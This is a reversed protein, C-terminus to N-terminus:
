APNPVIQRHPLEFRQLAFECFPIDWKGAIIALQNICRQSCGFRVVIDIVHRETCVERGYIMQEDIRQNQCSKLFDERAGFPLQDVEDAMVNRSFFDDVTHWLPNM